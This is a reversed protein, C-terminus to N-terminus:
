LSGIVRSDQEKRGCGPCHIETLQYRMYLDSKERHQVTMPAFGCLKCTLPTSKPVQELATLRAEIRELRQELRALDELKRLSAIFLKFTAWWGM